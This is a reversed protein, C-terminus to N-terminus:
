EIIRSTCDDAKGPLVTAVFNRDMMGPTIDTTMVIMLAGSKILRDTTCVADRADGPKPDVIRMKSWKRIPNGIQRAMVADRSATGSGSMSIVDCGGQQNTGVWVLGDLKWAPPVIGSKPIRSNYVEYSRGNAQVRLTEALAIGTLMHTECAEIGFLVGGNTRDIDYASPATSCGLAFCAAAATMLTRTM